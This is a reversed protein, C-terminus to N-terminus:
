RRKRHSSGVQQQDKSPVQVVSPMVTEKHHNSYPKHRKLVKLTTEGQKKGLKSMISAEEKKELELLKVLWKKNRLPKLELSSQFQDRQPNMPHKEPLNRLQKKLTQIRLHKEVKIPRLHKKL